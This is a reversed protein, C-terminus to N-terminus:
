HFYFDLSFYTYSAQLHMNVLLNITARVLTSYNQRIEYKIPLLLFHHQSARTISSLPTAPESPQSESFPQLTIPPQLLPPGQTQERWVSNFCSVEAVM